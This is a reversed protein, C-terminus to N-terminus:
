TEKQCEPIEPSGSLLLIVSIKNKELYKLWLQFLLSSRNLNLIRKELSTELRSWKGEPMRSNRTCRQAVFHCFNQGKGFIEVLLEFTSELAM